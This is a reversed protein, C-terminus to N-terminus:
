IDTLLEPVVVVVTGIPWRKEKKMKDRNLNNNLFVKRDLDFRGLYDFWISSSKAVEVVFEEVVVVAVVTMMVQQEVLLVL